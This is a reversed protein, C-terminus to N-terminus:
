SESAVEEEVDVKAMVEDYEHSIIKALWEFSAEGRKKTIPVTVISKYFMHYNPNRQDDPLASYSDITVTGM